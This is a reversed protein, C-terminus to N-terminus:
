KTDVLYQSTAKTLDSYYGRYETPLLAAIRYMIEETIRERVARTLREDGTRVSFPAGVRFYFDTRRFRVLNRWFNELGYYAVPWL